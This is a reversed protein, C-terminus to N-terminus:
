LRKSEAAEHSSEESASDLDLAPNNASSMTMTARTDADPDYQHFRVLHTKSPYSNTLLGKSFAECGPLKAVEFGLADLALIVDNLADRKLTQTPEYIASAWLIVGLFSKKYIYTM